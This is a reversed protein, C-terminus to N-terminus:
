LTYQQAIQNIEQIFQGSKWMGASEKVKRGTHDLFYITPVGRIGYKDATQKDIDIDIYINILQESSEVVNRDSLVEKSLKKCYGCWKATFYLMIPRQTSSAVQLGQSYSRLWAIKGGSDSQEQSQHKKYQDHVIAAIIGVIFIVILLEILTFGKQKGIFQKERTRKDM